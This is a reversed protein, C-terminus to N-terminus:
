KFVLTNLSKTIDLKLKKKMMEIDHDFQFTNLPSYKGKIKGIKEINESILKEKKINDVEKLEKIIINIEKKYTDDSDSTLLYELEKEQNISNVTIDTLAQTLENYINKCDKIIQGSVKKLFLEYYDNSYLEFGFKMKEIFKTKNTYKINKSSMSCNSKKEFNFNFDIKTDDFSNENNKIENLIDNDNTNIVIQINNNESSNQNNSNKDNFTNNTVSNINSLDILKLEKDSVFDISENNASIVEISNNIGVNKFAKGIFNNNNMNDSKSLQYRKKKEALRKKFDNQQENMEKEILNNIKIKTNIPENKKRKIINKVKEGNIKKECNELKKKLKEKKYEAKKKGGALYKKAETQSFLLSLNQNYLVYKPDNISEYYAIAASYYYALKQFIKINFKQKLKVECELVSEFFDKPLPTIEKEKENKNPNSNSNNIFSIRKMFTNVKIGIYKEM